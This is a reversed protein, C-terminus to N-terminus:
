KNKNCACVLVRVPAVVGICLHVFWFWCWFTIRTHLHSGGRRDSRSKAATVNGNRNDIWNNDRWKGFDDVIRYASWCYYSLKDFSNAMINIKNEGCIVCFGWLVLFALALESILQVVRGISLSHRVPQKAQVSFQTWRTNVSQRVSLSVSQRISHTLFQVSQSVFQLCGLMANTNQLQTHMGPIRFLLVAKHSSYTLVGWKFSNLILFVL